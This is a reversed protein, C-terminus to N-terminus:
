KNPHGFKELRKLEMIKYKYLRGIHLEINNKLINLDTLNDASYLLDIDNKLTFKERLKKQNEM